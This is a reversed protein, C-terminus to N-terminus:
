ESYGKPGYGLIQEMEDKTVPRGRVDQPICPWVEERLYREMRELRSLGPQRLRLRVNREQLAQRIAETKTVGALTAVEAALREVEKNKINLAM